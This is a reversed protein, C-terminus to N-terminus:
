ALLWSGRRGPRMDVPPAALCNGWGAGVRVTAHWERPTAAVRGTARRRWSAGMWATRASLARLWTQLWQRAAATLCRATASRQLPLTTASSSACPWRWPWSATQTPRPACRAGPATSWRGLAARGKLAAAKWGYATWRSRAQLCPAPPPAHPQRCCPPPCLAWCAGAGTRLLAPQVLSCGQRGEAYPVPPPEVKCVAGLFQGQSGETDCDHSLSLSMSCEALSREAGSCELAGGWYAQQAYCAQAAAVSFAAGSGFGLTACVVSPTADLAPADLQLTQCFPRWPGGGDVQFQVMGQRPSPGDALRM